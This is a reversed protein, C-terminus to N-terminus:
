SRSDRKGFQIDRLEMEVKSGGCYFVVWSLSSMLRSWLPTFLPPLDPLGHPPSTGASKSETCFVRGSQMRWFSLFSVLFASCLSSKAVSGEDVLDVLFWGCDLVRHDDVSRASATSWIGTLWPSVTKLPFSLPYSLALFSLFSFPFLLLFTPILGSSSLCLCFLSNFILGSLALFCQSM